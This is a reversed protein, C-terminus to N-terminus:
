TLMTRNSCVHAEYYDVEYGAARLSGAIDNIVVANKKSGHQWDKFGSLHNELIPAVIDVYFRNLRVFFLTEVSVM